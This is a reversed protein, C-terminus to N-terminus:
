HTVVLKRLTSSNNCILEVLYIGNELDLNLKSGSQLNQVNLEQAIQGNLTIIRLLGENVNSSLQIFDTAPNPGFALDINEHIINSTPSLVADIVHVVGNDAILDAVIVTADNIMVVGNSINVTVDEGNLTEIMMGDALDSSLGLSGVVHYLLIQTLEGSPDALLDNLLDAPINAFAADTPAFVTLTANPDSLDSDLGAAIVAAELTTHDESDVIIDLVSAVGTGCTTTTIDPCEVVVLDDVYYDGPTVGDGYGFLNLGGIQADFEVNALCEGNVHIEARNNQPDMYMNILTWSGPTYTSQTIVVQDISVSSNGQADLVIDFAWGVAVTLNEQMNFYASNGPTVYVNFSLEYPEDLGMPLYVDMPGTGNAAGFIHLSKSGTFAYDESVIGDEDTGTTGSWTTWVESSEGIYAGTAYDEFSEELLPDQAFLGGCLLIACSLLFKKM